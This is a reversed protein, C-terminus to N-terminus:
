QLYLLTPTSMEVGGSFIVHIRCSTRFTHNPIKQISPISRGSLVFMVHWPTSAQFFFTKSPSISLLRFCSNQANSPPIVSASFYPLLNDDRGLLHTSKLSSFSAEWELVEPVLSLTFLFPQHTLPLSVPSTRTGEARSDETESGTLETFM